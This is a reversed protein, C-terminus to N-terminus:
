LAFLALSALPRLRRCSTAALAERGHGLRGQLDKPSCETTERPCCDTSPWRQPPGWTSRSGKATLQFCVKDEDQCTVQPLPREVAPSTVGTHVTVQTLENTSRRPFAFGYSRPMPSTFGRSRKGGVSQTGAEEAVSRHM